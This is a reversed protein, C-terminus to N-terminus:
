WQIWWSHETTLIVSELSPRQKGLNLQLGLPSMIADPSCGAL